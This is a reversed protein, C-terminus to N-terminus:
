HDPKVNGGYDSAIGASVYGGDCFLIHGNMYSANEGALFLAADAVEEVAGYRGVPIYMKYAERTENNHTIRTLPTDIPGPGVANVTIGKPGLELAAQRTLGIVAAKSTGYATRGSGARQGAISAINIIRGYSNKIMERAAAQACYLTGYLNVKMVRDFEEPTAELFSHRQGTGAVNALIDVRGFRNVTKEIMQTAHEPNTVDIQTSLTEGGINKITQITESLGEINKDAAVIKAGNQAFLYAIGRGIGSAAGTVVAVCNKLRMIYNLPKAM